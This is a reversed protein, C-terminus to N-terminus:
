RTLKEPSEDHASVQALLQQQLADLWSRQQEVVVVLADV